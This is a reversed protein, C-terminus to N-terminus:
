NRRVAFGILLGVGIAVALTALPRNKAQVALQEMADNGAKAGARLAENGLSAAQDVAVRQGRGFRNVIENLIPGIADAIQTGAASASASARRGAGKGIGGLEKEIARLHSGISAIRTDFETSRHQFM